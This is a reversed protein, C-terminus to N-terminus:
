VVQEKLLHLKVEVRFGGPICQRQGVVPQAATIAALVACGGLASSLRESASPGQEGKGASKQRAHACFFM